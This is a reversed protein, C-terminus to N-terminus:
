LFLTIFLIYFFIFKFIILELSKGKDAESVLKILHSVINQGDM